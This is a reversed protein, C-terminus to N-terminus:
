FYDPMFVIKELLIVIGKIEILVLVQKLSAPVKTFYFLFIRDLYVKNNIQM